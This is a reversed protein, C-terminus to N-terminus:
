PNTPELTGTLPVSPNLTNDVVYMAYPFDTFKGPRGPKWQVGVPNMIAVGPAPGNSFDLSGCMGSYSMTHLAHAVEKPDHPDSAATFANYAVEFLSYTSGLAQTWQHGTSTQYGEALSAASEGDLSSAYPMNPTWWADTAINNVLSGLAVVDSPFLLVKAVTAIRPKYGEQYAQKWFTNFDPPLPVNTYVECNKSKFLSIMSSYDTTGDPYAGGDVPTYGAKIMAPPFFQRFANGDADNPFMEAVVKDTPIRNWIPIFCGAFQPLGFFFMTCYEFVESTSPPKAGLGYYWSEWPVVTSVCPVGQAECVVAVPNTTEPGSGAVVIDVKDQLILQRTVESARNPSSQSDVDIIRIHYTKGGKTIGKRYASTSRITSLIYNDSTAFSALSGTKPSVYGIVLDRTSASATGKLGSSCASLVGGGVALAAGAGLGKLLSRRSIARSWVSEEKTQAGLLTGGGNAM